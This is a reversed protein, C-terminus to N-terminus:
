LCVMFLENCQGGQTMCMVKYACQCYMAIGSVNCSTSCKVVPTDTQIHYMCLHVTPLQILQPLVTSHEHRHNITVSLVKVFMMNLFLVSCFVYLHADYHGM